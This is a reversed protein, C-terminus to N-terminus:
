FQNLYATEIEKIKDGLLETADMGAIQIKYIEFQGSYNTDYEPSDEEIFLYLDVKKYIFQETRTAM